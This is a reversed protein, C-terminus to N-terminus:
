GIALSTTMGEANGSRSSDPGQGCGTAAEPNFDFCVCLLLESCIYTRYVVPHHATYICACLQLM